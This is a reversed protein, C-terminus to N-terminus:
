RFIIVICYSESKGECWRFGEALTELPANPLVFSKFRAQTVEFGEM